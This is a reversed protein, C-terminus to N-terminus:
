APPSPAYASAWPESSSLHTTVTSTRPLFAATSEIHTCGDEHRPTFIEAEPFEKLLLLASALGAESVLMIATKM